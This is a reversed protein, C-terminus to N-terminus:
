ESFEQILRIYENLQDQSRYALFRSISYILDSLKLADVIVTMSKKDIIVYLVDPFENSRIRGILFVNRFGPFRLERPQEQVLSSINVQM